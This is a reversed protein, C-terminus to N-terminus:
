PTPLTDWYDCMAKRYGTETSVTMDLVINADGTADYKPWMPAKAGNPDGSTAHRSWYGMFTASLTKENDSLPQPLLQSPNGLVYRIESSHFSGLDGLLGGTPAYSFHYLFTPSGAKTFARAARRTPCAFGGDTVAAIAAKQPSGYMASPYHSAIDAGHGPFLQESLMVFTADDPVSIGGLVFFLSGEDSNTGLITPMVEGGGAAIINAPKDPFNLGDVVPLWKAGDPGIFDKSQPLAALIEAASKGRLCSL